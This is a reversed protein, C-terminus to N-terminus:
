SSVGEKKSGQDDALNDADALSIGVAERYFSLLL